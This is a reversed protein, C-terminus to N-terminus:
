WGLGRVVYPAYFQVLVATLWLGPICWCAATAIILARKM